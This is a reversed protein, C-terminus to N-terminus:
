IPVSDEYTDTDTKSAKETPKFRRNSGTIFREITYFNPLVSCSLKNGSSWWYGYFSSKCVTHIAKSIDNMRRSQQIIENGILITTRSLKHIISLEQNAHIPFSDIDLLRVNIRDRHNLLNNVASTDKYIQLWQLTLTLKSNGDRILSSLYNKIESVRAQDEPLFYSANGPTRYFQFPTIIEFGCPRYGAPEGLSNYHTWRNSDSDLRFSSVPPIDKATTQTQPQTVNWPFLYPSNDNNDPYTLYDAKIKDLVKNSYELDNSENKESFLEFTQILNNFLKRSNTTSKGDNLVTLHHLMKYSASNIMFVVYNWCNRLQTRLLYYNKQDPSTMGVSLKINNFFNTLDSDICGFFFILARTLLIVLFCIEYKEAHLGSRDLFANPADFLYSLYKNICSSINGTPELRRLPFGSTQISNWPALEFLMLVFQFHDIVATEPELPKILYFYGMVQNLVDRQSQNKKLKIKQDNTTKYQKGEKKLLINGGEQQLVINSGEEVLIGSSEGNDGYTVPQGPILDKAFVRLRKINLLKEDFHKQFFDEIKFTNLEQRLDPLVLRNSDKITGKSTGENNSGFYHYKSKGCNTDPKFERMIFNGDDKEELEILDRLTRTEIRNEIESKISGEINDIAIGLQKTKIEEQGHSEISSVGREHEDKEHQSGVETNADRELHEIQREHEDKEHQSGVVTNADRELHEIPRNLQEKKKHQSGVEKKADLELHEIPRNLQENKKHQSGVEKKAELDLHEIQQDRENKSRKRLLRALRTGGELNEPKRRPLASVGNVVEKKADPELKDKITDM